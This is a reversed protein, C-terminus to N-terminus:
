TDSASGGLHLLFTENGRDRGGMLVVTGGPGRASFSKLLKWFLILCLGLKLFTGGRSDRRKTNNNM